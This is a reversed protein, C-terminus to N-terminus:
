RRRTIKTNKRRRTNTNRRRRSSKRPLKAKVLCPCFGAICECIGGGATGASGAGGGGGGGGATSGMTPMMPIGRGHYTVPAATRATGPAPVRDLLQRVQLLHARTNGQFAPRPRTAPLIALMDVGYYARVPTWSPITDAYLQHFLTRPRMAAVYDLVNFVIYSAAGSTIRPLRATAAVTGATTTAAAGGGAGGAAAAATAATAAATAAPAATPQYVDCLSRLKEKCDESLSGFQILSAILIYMDFSWCGEFRDPDGYAMRVLAGGPAPTPLAVCSMGFDILTVKRRGFMVNDAHLDRHVFGYNTHLHSLLTTLQTLVLRMDEFGGGLLTETYMYLSDALPGMSIVLAPETDAYGQVAAPVPSLRSLGSPRCVHDCVRALGEVGELRTTDCSLVVQVWTEVFIGRLKEDLRSARFTGAIIPRPRADERDNGTTVIRKFAVSRDVSRFVTGFTGRGAERTDIPTVVGGRTVTGVAADLLIQPLAEMHRIYPYEGRPPVYATQLKAVLDATARVQAATPAAGYLVQSFATLANAYTALTAM